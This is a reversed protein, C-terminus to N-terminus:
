RHSCRGRNCLRTLWRVQSAHHHHPPPPPILRCVPSKVRLPTPRVNESANSRSSRPTSGSGSVLTGTRTGGSISSSTSSLFTCCHTHLSRTPSTSTIGRQATSATQAPPLAVYGRARTLRHMSRLHHNTLSRPHIPAVLARMSTRVRHPLSHTGRASSCREGM